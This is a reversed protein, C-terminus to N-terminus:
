SIKGPHVAEIEAFRTLDQVNFTVIKKIGNTKMVAVLRADHVQAGSVRHTAVLAKWAVCSGANERLIQFFGEM